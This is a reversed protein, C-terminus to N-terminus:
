KEAQKITARQADRPDFGDLFFVVNTSKTWARPPDAVLLADFLDAIFAAPLLENILRDREPRGPISLVLLRRLVEEMAAKPGLRTEAGREERYWKWGTNDELYNLLDKVPKIQGVLNLGAILPAVFPVTYGLANLSEFIQKGTSLKRRIETPTFSSVDTNALASQAILAGLDFRPFVLHKRQEDDHQLLQDRLNVLISLLDKPADSRTFDLHAYPLAAQEYSLYCVKDRLYAILTSKGSGGPAIFALIPLLPWPKAPDRGRLANFLAIAERRDTFNELREKSM